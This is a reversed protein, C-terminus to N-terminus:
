HALAPKAGVESSGVASSIIPLLIKAMETEGYENLHLGDFSFKAADNDVRAFDPELDIVKIGSLNASSRVVEQYIQAAPYRDFPAVFVPLIVVLAVFGHKQQLESLLSLGAEVPTRGKLINTEYSEGEQPASALIRHHLVFALRSLRLLENYMGNASSKSRAALLSAYVGGDSHVNFDNACFTVLVLDPDYKLGKVRLTEVEQLTHYGGVGMNLVEYNANRKPESNLLRQLQKPFTDELDAIGNGATTSDGLAIIRYTHPPKQESFEHDRFGANNTAFESEPPQGEPRYGSRYEYAIIPDDSLQYASVRLPALPRPPVDLVRVGLEMLLLCVLITGVLLLLNGSRNSM